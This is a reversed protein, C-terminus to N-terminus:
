PMTMSWDVDSECFEAISQLTQNNEALSLVNELGIVVSTVGYFNCLEFVLICKM